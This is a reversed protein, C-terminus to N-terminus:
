ENLLELHNMGKEVIIVEGNHKKASASIKM